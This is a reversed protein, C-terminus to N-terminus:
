GFFLSAPFLTLHEPYTFYFLSQFCQIPLMDCISTITPRFLNKKLLLLSFLLITISIFLGVLGFTRGISWVILVHLDRASSLLFFFSHPFQFRVSIFPIVQSLKGLSSLLSPCASSSVERLLFAFKYLPMWLPLDQILPLYCSSGNKNRLNEEVRYPFISLRPKIADLFCM